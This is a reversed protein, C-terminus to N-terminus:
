PREELLSLTDHDTVATGFRRLLTLCVADSQYDVSAYTPLWATLGYGLGRRYDTWAQERDLPLGLHDLYHELLPREHARRDAPTLASTVFYGVDYSWHGTRVLQWDLFGVEGGPLTYTNGIHTDGHLLTQPGRRFVEACRRALWLCRDWRRLPGPLVEIEGNRRLRPPGQVGGILNLLTWGHQVRWPSLFGLEAPVANWYRRHLRALEQLGVAVEDVGLPTTAINMRAGDAAVDRMVVISNLRPRDTGVAYVEPRRAPLEAGSAFLRAEPTLLELAGLMLRHGLRGQAKLFVTAPGGAGPRYGLHLRLRSTTGPDVEDQKVEDVVAGPHATALARTAWEPTFAWGTPVPVSAPRPASTL